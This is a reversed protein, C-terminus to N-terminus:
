FQVNIGFMVTRPTPYYGIDIGSGFGEGGDYGVEPDMGSYNTFTYLNQVAAYVRFKSVPIIKIFNKFDYGLSIYSIRLYDGDEIFRDSIKQNQNQSLSVKPHSNSTGEGHWRDFVDTTYNQKPLDIFSRYSKAIQNGFVGNASLSFDFGKYQVGMNIGLTYDPNPDGIMVKDADDIVGNGDTDVYKMDGPTADPQIVTGESNVYAGVEQENQFVGDTEYGRFYGIPYGVEARFLESTGQAIVDIPGHIIKEENGIKTIENKNKSLNIGFNYSLDGVKDRWNLSLEFGKNEVEGGNIYPAGTGVSALMPALVLWDKTTKTYWDFNLSLKNSLLKADFGFNLQESTEWAVDENALINPYAGILATSKDSTYTKADFTITSLYQFTPINQNGNQGWSARIKLYDLISKTSDMFSEESLLWGAAVSPFYGWRKGKPFNSSADARMVLTMMYKEGYNYNLRGFYSLLSSEGYPAGSLITSGAVVNKTNSLYAYKFGEFQSNINTGEITEGINNKQVTNGVLINFNSDDLNFKYNLTNEFTYGYGMYMSQNVKNENQFYQSSLDFEPVYSRYSGLSLNYGFSSKFVLNNIPNVIAYINSLLNHSKNLNTGENYEMYGIPNAITPDWAISKHYNGNADKNPLFPSAVISSKISNSYADGVAIGSNKSYSYTIKEGIKLLDLDKYKFILHETNVRATYRQYSSPVPNGLIGEQDTYSFGLSYISRETGGDVSFSHSKIAANKNTLEDMWDTGGSKLINDYNPVLSAFDFPELGDNIRAENMIVSYEKANLTPVNKYVNQIGYYADYSFTAKKNYKGSKTTILIVGNAARSGYIAASAADKLVDFSEIDSPNLFDANDSAIGDIIFLPSADGTTGKGRISINFGSGPQGSKKIIQVGAVTSKLADTAFVTNQKQLVDGKVQSTAGTVLKKKQVGYGVVVVEDINETDTEMSVNIVNNNVTIEQVQFGIFSYVLVSGKTAKIEYAGDINTSTGVTSGKVVVSVGPLSLGTDDNVIGTITMEQAQAFSQLSIAFLLVLIKRVTKSM